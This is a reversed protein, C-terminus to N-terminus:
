AAHAPQDHQPRVRGVVAGVHDGGGSAVAGVERDSGALVPGHGRRDGRYRLIRPRRDAVRARDEVVLEPLPDTVGFDGLDREGREGRFGLSPLDGRPQDHPPHPVGVGVVHVHVRLALQKGSPAVVGHEGVRGQRHEGDLGVVTAVRDDFLDDGVELCPWQCAQRGAAERRVGRPQHEGRDREVQGAGGASEGRGRM